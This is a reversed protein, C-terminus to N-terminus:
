VCRVSCVVYETCSEASGTHHFFFLGDEAKEEGERRKVKGEGGVGGRGSREGGVGGRGGGEGVRYGM